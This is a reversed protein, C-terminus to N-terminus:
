YIPVKADILKAWADIGGKLSQVQSFGKSRLYQVGHFSRVGHHCYLIVKKEKLETEQEISPLTNLPVLRGGMDSIAKEWSERVDILEYSSQELAQLDQPTIELTNTIM